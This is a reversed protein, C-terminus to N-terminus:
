GTIYCTGVKTLVLRTKACLYDEGTIQQSRQSQSLAAVKELLQNRAELRRQELRMQELQQTAVALQREAQEM